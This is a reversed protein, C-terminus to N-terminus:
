QKLRLIELLCWFVPISEVWFACYYKSQKEKANILFLIGLISILLTTLLRNADITQKFFELLVFSLGFLVGIIKSKKVGITQPLTNLSDKDIYLDRIDFPITILVIFIFRQFFTIWIASTFEINNQILPFLVTVGAFSIAILFLKLGSISRLSKKIFPLPLGYFLTFVAFPILWLIAKIQINILLPVILIISLSVLIYLATKSYEFWQLFWSTIDKLRYFRIFNYSIITSCFVFLPTTNETTGYTLLTIKTLCYTGLAVHINSFIYFQFFRKLFQM